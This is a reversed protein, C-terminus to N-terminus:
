SRGGHGGRYQTPSAGFRRRFRRDFYSVENFGCAAALDSVRLRDHRRDSLMARAKQVRLEIVRETFSTGTEGLLNQVSRPALRLKRAVDRVSFGPEGYGAMIAAVIAQVRAARLGRMRALAAQERRAGLSLAVLDLLTTAVVEGSEGDDPPDDLLFDLYRGLHLTAPDSMDLPTGVLDEVGAVREILMARPLTLGVTAIRSKVHGRGPEASSYLIGGGGKDNVERNRQAYALAGGRNFRVFFNDHADAAVQRTTRATSRITADFRTLLIVGVRVLEAYATFPRDPQRTMDVDGHHAVYLDRWLKFRADDDLHAPLRGSSFVVRNM